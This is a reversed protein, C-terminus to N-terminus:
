QKYGNLSTIIKYKKLGEINSLGSIREDYATKLEDSLLTMVSSGDKAIPLDFFLIIHGSTPLREDYNLIKSLERPSVDITCGHNMFLEAESPLLEKIEKKTLFTEDKTDYVFAANQYFQCNRDLFFSEVRDFREPYLQTWISDKKAQSEAALFFSFITTTILVLFQKMYGGQMFYLFSWM